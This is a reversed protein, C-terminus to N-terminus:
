GKKLAKQYASQKGKASELIPTSKVVKIMEELDKLLPIYPIVVSQNNLDTRSMALIDKEDVDKDIGLHIFINNLIAQKQGEDNIIGFNGKTPKIEIALGKTLYRDRSDELGINDIMINNVKLVPGDFTIKAEVVQAIDRISDRRLYRRFILGVVGGLVSAYITAGIYGWEYVNFSRIFAISAVLSTILSIYSRSEYTSCIEEIYAGGKPVISSKDVNGISIREQNSIGQFQQIAVAFFTLASFEKDLLAPFAIAGLAAALSSMIIQEVYDQPRSPYQKDTVRLVLGRCIVGILIAVIFSRRFLEESLVSDQVNEVGKRKTQAFFM